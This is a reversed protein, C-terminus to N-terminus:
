SRHSRGARCQRPGVAREGATAIVLLDRWMIVSCPSVRQPNHLELRWYRHDLPHRLGNLGMRGPQGSAEGAPVLLGAVVAIIVILTRM